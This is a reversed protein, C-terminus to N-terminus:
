KEASNEMRQHITHFVLKKDQITKSHNAIPSLLMFNNQSNPNNSFVKEQTYPFINKWMFLTDVTCHMKLVKVNFTTLMAHM